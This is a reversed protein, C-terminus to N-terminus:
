DLNFAYITPESILFRFSGRSLVKFLRVSCKHFMYRPNPWFLALLDNDDPIRNRNFSAGMILRDLM